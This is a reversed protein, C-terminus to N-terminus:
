DNRRAEYKTGAKYTVAEQLAEYVEEDLKKAATDTLNLVKALDVEHKNLIELVKEMDYSRSQTKWIDFRLDGTHVPGHLKIWGRLASKLQSLHTEKVVIDRAYAAATQGSLIEVMARVDKQRPCENIYDCYTCCSGPIARFKKLNEIREILKLVKGQIVAIDDISFTLSRTTNFRVYHMGSEIWKIDPNDIMFMSVWAYRECQRRYMRDKEFTSQAPLGRDTKYDTIIIKNGEIHIRDIIARFFRDDADWAVEQLNENLSVMCESDYYTNLDLIFSTYFAEWLENLEEFKELSVQENDILENVMDEAHTIDTQRGIKVLHKVYVEALYHFASGVGFIHHTFDERDYDRAKTNHRKLGRFPCAWQELGSHSYSFRSL